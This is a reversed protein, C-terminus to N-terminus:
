IEGLVQHPLSLVELSIPTHNTDLEEFVDVFLRKDVM